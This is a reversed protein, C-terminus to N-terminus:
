SPSVMMRLAPSLGSRMLLSAAERFSAPILGTGIPLLIVLPLCRMLVAAVPLEARRDVPGTITLIINWSDVIASTARLVASPLLLRSMM